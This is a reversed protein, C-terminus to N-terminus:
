LEDVFADDVAPVDDFSPIGGIYSTATAMMSHLLGGAPDCGVATLMQGGCCALTLLVMIRKKIRM